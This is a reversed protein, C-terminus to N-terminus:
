FGHIKAAMKWVQDALEHGEALIMAPTEKPLSPKQTQGRMQQKYSGSLTLMVLARREEDLVGYLLAADTVGDDRLVTEIMTRFRNPPGQHPQPPKRRRATSIPTPRRTPQKKTM